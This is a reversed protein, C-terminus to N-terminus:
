SKDKEHRRLIQLFPLTERVVKYSKGIHVFNLLLDLIRPAIGVVWPHEVELLDTSSGIPDPTANDPCWTVHTGCPTM